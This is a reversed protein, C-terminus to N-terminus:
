NKTAKKELLDARKKLVDELKSKPILLVHASQARERPLRQDIKQIREAFEKDRRAADAAKEGKEPRRTKVLSGGLSFSVPYHEGALTGIRIAYSLGDFTTADVRIPKDLGQERASRPAVDALELIGLSYSAANARTIELKEGAKAGALKWGADDAQRDIKWGGGGPFRVEMSKVKEVVFATREIWDASRASAQELPDAVIYATKPEEPRMAFRGDAPAREADEPESKFYKRGLILRALPKGETGLFEVLTGAGDRGPENLLLRARDAEGIPESQAVKSEIVKLTFDRVKGFDAPFGEREVLTWNGDSRALTLAAKPKTIRLTVIDAARLEALLPKGLLALNSAQGSREQREYVLAGGGLVILLIVLVATYRANM